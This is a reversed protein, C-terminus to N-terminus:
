AIKRNGRADVEDMRECKGVGGTGGVGKTGEDGPFWKLRRVPARM